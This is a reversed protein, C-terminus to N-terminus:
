YSLVTVNEAFMASWTYEPTGIIIGDLVDEEVMGGVNVMCVPCVLVVGGDDMFKQLMEHITKGSKHINQPITVDAFRVGQTNIFITVPKDTNNLVKTAFGVAMAARDIDDTTLNVFLGNALDEPGRPTPAPDQMQVTETQGTENAAVATGSPSVVMQVFSFLGFVAFLVVLLRFLHNLKKM